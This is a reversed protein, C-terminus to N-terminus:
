IWIRQTALKWNWYRGLLHQWKAFQDATPDCTKRFTKALHKCFFKIIVTHSLIIVHIFSYLLHVNSKKSYVISFWISYGKDLCFIQCFDCTSKNIQLNIIGHCVTIPLFIALGEAFANLFVKITNDCIKFSGPWSKVKNGNAVMVSVISLTTQAILPSFLFLTIFTTCEVPEILFELLLFKVNTM